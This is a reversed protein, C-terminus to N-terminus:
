LDALSVFVLGLQQRFIWRSNEFKFSAGSKPIMGGGSSERLIKNWEEDHSRGNCDDTFCACVGLTSELATRRTTLM